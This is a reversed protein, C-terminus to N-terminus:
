WACAASIFISARFRAGMSDNYTDVIIKSRCVTAPQLLKKQREPNDCCRDAARINRQMLTGSRWQHSSGAPITDGNRDYCCDDARKLFYKM